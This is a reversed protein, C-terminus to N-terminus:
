TALSLLSTVYTMDSRLTDYIHHSTNIVTHAVLDYLDNVPGVPLGHESLQWSHSPILCQPM